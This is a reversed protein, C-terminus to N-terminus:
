NAEGGKEALDGIRKVHRQAREEREQAIARVATEPPCAIAATKELRM